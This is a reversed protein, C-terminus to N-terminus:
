YGSGELEGVPKTRFCVSLNEGLVKTANLFSYNEIVDNGPVNGHFTSPMCKFSFYKNQCCRGQSVVSTRVTTKKTFSNYGHSHSIIM